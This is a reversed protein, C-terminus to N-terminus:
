KVPLPIKDFMAEIEANTKLTVAQDVVERTLHPAFRKIFDYMYSRLFTGKKFGIKTTSAEFIHSADIAVLDSDTAPDMAMSAIVGVGIGLRVYTKIVDADTATFVIRPTLGSRNFASDLESRGTFGFVYTVLPYAALDHITIESKQALPHDAKVVISRNWHYCPLMIMDQYLHLAETAIAFDTTGKSVADALQNPTGQHMHLTVKPYRATFGQIVPPLAYRAQTHTTAINLTGMEPHTHEGAVSKISEARSLIDRAIKVISEGAPTVQTLHKGSREFIQVGLEDELLRVQKSIGPQSTYLSEATASVNLNHNVVEVIYRLQQLKM